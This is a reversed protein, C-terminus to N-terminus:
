DVFAAELMRPGGASDEVTAEIRRGDTEKSVGAICSDPCPEKARPLDVWGASYFKQMVVHPPIDSYLTYSIFAGGEPASDCGSGKVLTSRVDPSLLPGIVGALREGERDDKRYCDASSSSTADIGACGSSTTMAGVVVLLALGKKM